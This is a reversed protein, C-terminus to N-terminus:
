WNSLLIDMSVDVRTDCLTLTDDTVENEYCKTVTGHTVSM